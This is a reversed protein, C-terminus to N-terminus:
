AGFCKSYSLYQLADRVIHDREELFRLWEIRMQECDLTLDASSLGDKGESEEVLYALVVDVTEIVHVLTVQGVWDKRAHDIRLAIQIIQVYPAWNESLHYQIM